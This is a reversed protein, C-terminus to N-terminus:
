YPIYPSSMKSYCCIAFRMHMQHVCPMLETQKSQHSCEIWVQSCVLCHVITQEFLTTECLVCVCVNFYVSCVEKIVNLYVWVVGACLCFEREYVFVKLETGYRLIETGYRLESCSLISDPGFVPFSGSDCLLIPQKVAFMQHVAVCLMM